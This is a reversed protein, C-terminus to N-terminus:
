HNTTFDKSALLGWIFDELFDLRDDASAQLELQGVWYSSENITPFRNYAALYYETIIDIPATNAKVLDSLRGDNRSIRGNLFEGNFYHLKQTLGSAGNQKM